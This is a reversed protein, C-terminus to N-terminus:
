AAGYDISFVLQMFHGETEAEAEDPWMPGMRKRVDRILLSGWRKAVEVMEDRLFGAQNLFYIKADRPSVVLHEPIPAEILLFLEGQQRYRDRRGTSAMEFDLTDGDDVVAFPRRVRPTVTAVDGAVGESPHTNYLGRHNGTVVIYNVGRSTYRVTERVGGSEPLIQVVGEDPWYPIDHSFALEGAGSEPLPVTVLMPQAMEPSVLHVRELADAATYVGVWRQWATTMAVLEALHALPLALSSRAEIPAEIAM